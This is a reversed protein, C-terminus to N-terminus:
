VALRRCESWVLVLVPAMNSKDRSWSFSLSLLVLRPRSFEDGDFVDKVPIM